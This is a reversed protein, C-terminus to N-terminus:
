GLKSTLGLMIKAKIDNSVGFITALKEVYERYNEQFKTGLLRAIKAVEEERRASNPEGLDEAIINKAENSFSMIMARCFPQLVEVLVSKFMAEKNQLEYMKEIIDKASTVFGTLAQAFSLTPCVRYQADAVPILSVITKLSEQLVQEPSGIEVKAGLLYNIQSPNYGLASAIQEVSFGDQQMQFAQRQSEVAASIDRRAAQIEVTSKKDLESLKKKDM